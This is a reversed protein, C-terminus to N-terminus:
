FIWGRPLPFGLFRVIVVYIAMLVFVPILLIRRIKRVGFYAMLTTLILFSSIFFGILKVLMLYIGFAVATVVVRVIVKKDPKQKEEENIKASRQFILMIGAIAILITVLQPFLAEEEGKTEEPIILFWLVLCIALLVVGMIRNKQLTSIKM